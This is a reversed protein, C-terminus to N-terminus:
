MFLYIYCLNTTTTHSFNCILLLTISFNASEFTFVVWWLLSKCLVLQDVNHLFVQFIDDRQQARELIGYRTRNALWEKRVAEQMSLRFISHEMPM